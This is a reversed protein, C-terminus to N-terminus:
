FGNFWQQQTCLKGMTHVEPFDQRLRSKSIKRRELWVTRYFIATPADLLGFLIMTVIKQVITIWDLWVEYKYIEM